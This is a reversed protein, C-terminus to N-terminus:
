LAHLPEDQREMLTPIDFGPATGFERRFRASILDYHRLARTRRGQRLWISILLYQVDNDGPQLRALDEAFRSAGALDDELLRMEALVRLPVEVLARLREREEMAWDAYPEESLFDGGYLALAHLLHREASVREGTLFEEGGLRVAEEFSEADIWVLDRNLGYAARETVIFSAGSKDGAQGVDIQNRLLHVAHRVTGAGRIGLHPWLAEAIADVPVLRDRNAVLFKLLQGPRQDLWEHDAPGYPQEIRTKGLTFIRLWKGHDAEPPVTLNTRPVLRCVVQDQGGPERSASLWVPHPAPTGVLTTGRITRGESALAADTLCGSWSATAQGCGLVECCTLGGVNAGIFTVAASNAALIRRSAAVVLIPRVATELALAVATAAPEPRHPRKTSDPPQATQRARRRVRALLADPPEDSLAAISM